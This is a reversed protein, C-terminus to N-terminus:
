ACYTGIFSRTEKRRNLSLHYYNDISLHVCPFTGDVGILRLGPESRMKCECTLIQAGRLFFFICVAQEAPKFTIPLSTLTELSKAVTLAM